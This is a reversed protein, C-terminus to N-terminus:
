SSCNVSHRSHCKGAQCWVWGPLLVPQLDAGLLYGPRTLWVPPEAALRPKACGAFVDGCLLSSASRGLFVQWGNGDLCPPAAWVPVAPRATRPM